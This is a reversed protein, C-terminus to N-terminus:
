ILYLTEQTATIFFSNHVSNCIGVRQYEGIQSEDKEPRHGVDHKKTWYQRLLLMSSRGIQLCVLSKLDADSLVDVSDRAGIEPFLYDLQVVVEQKHPEYAVLQGTKANRSHIPDSIYNSFDFEGTSGQKPVISTWEKKKSIESFLRRVRGCVKVSRVLGGRMVVEQPKSPQDEKGLQPTELLKFESIPEFSNQTAIDSCVPLSAWSWTPAVLRLNKEPNKEPAKPAQVSWSLDEPFSERWLGALYEQGKVDGNENTYPGICQVALGAIALFRDSPNTIDRKVYATVLELWQVRLSVLDQDRRAQLFSQPNRMWTFSDLGELHNQAINQGTENRQSLLCSWYIQQGCVYLVRPSLREEQLTWARTYLPSRQRIENLPMDVNALWHGSYLRCIGTQFRWAERSYPIRETAKISTCIALTVHANGYIEHMKSSENNWDADPTICIQDIWIYRLGLSLTLRISDQITDPLAPLPFSTKRQQLNEETTGAAKIKAKEIKTAHAEGWTYSLAAYRIFDQNSTQVLKLEGADPSIHILNSPNRRSWGLNRCQSHKEHCDSLWRKIKSEVITHTREVCLNAPRIGQELTCSLMATTHDQWSNGVGIRLLMPNAISAPGDYQSSQLRARVGDSSVALKDAEGKTIQRLWLARYIVRCTACRNSCTKLEQLNKHFNCELTRPNGRKKKFMDGLILCGKCEYLADSNKRLKCFDVMICGRNLSILRSQEVLCDLGWTLELRPVLRHLM